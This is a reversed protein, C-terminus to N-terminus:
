PPLRGDTQDQTECAARAAERSSDLDRLVRVLRMSDAGAPRRLLYFSYVASVATRSPPQTSPRQTIAPAARASAFPGVFILGETGLSEDRRARACAAAV